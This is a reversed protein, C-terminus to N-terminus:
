KSIGLAASIIGGIVAIATSIKDGRSSQVKLDVIEKKNDNVGAQLCDDEAQRERIERGLDREINNVQQVLRPPEARTMDHIQNTLTEFKKDMRDNVQLIAQYLQATTVRGSGNPEEINDVM